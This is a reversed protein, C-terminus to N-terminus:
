LTVAYMESHVIIEVRRDKQDNDYLDESNDSINSAAVDSGMANVKILVNRLGHKEMYDRCALSRMRSIHLNYAKSGKKDAYGNIEVIARDTSNQQRFRDIVDDLMLKTEKKLTSKNFDFYVTAANGSLMSVHSKTNQKNKVSVSAVVEERKKSLDFAYANNTEIDISKLPIVKDKLGRKIISISGISDDEIDSSFYGEKNVPIILYKDKTVASNMSVYTYSNKSDISGKDVKLFGEIHFKYNFMGKESKMYKVLFKNENNNAKYFSDASAFSNFCVFNNNGLENSRKTLNKKSLTLNKKTTARYFRRNSYVRRSSKMSAFSAYSRKSYSGGVYEKDNKITNDVKNKRLVKNCTNATLYSSSFLFLAALLTLKNKM